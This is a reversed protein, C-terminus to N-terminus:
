SCFGGGPFTNCAHSVCDTNSACPSGFAGNSCEGIVDNANAKICAWNTPCNGVDKCLDPLCIKAKGAMYGDNCLAGETGTPCTGDQACAPFSYCKPPAQDDNPDNLCVSNAECGDNQDYTV